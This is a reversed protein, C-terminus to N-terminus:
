RGETRAKVHNVWGLDALRFRQHADIEQRLVAADGDEIQTKIQGFTPSPQEFGTLGNGLDKTKIQKMEDESFRVSEYIRQMAVMKGLPGTAEALFNTLGIRQAFTLELNKM